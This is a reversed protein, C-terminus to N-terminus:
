GYRHGESAAFGASSCRLRLERGVSAFVQYDLANRRRGGVWAGARVLGRAPAGGGRRSGFRTRQRIREAQFHSLIVLLFSFFQM